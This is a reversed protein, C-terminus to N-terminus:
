QIFHVKEVRTPQQSTTWNHYYLKGPVLISLVVNAPAPYMDVNAPIVYGDITVNKHQNYSNNDSIHM